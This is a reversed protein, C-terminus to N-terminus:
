RKKKTTIGDLDEGGVYDLTDDAFLKLMSWLFGDAIDCM